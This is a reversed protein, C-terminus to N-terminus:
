LLIAVFIGGRDPRRSCRQRQAPICRYFAFLHGGTAAKFLWGKGSKKLQSIRITKLESM